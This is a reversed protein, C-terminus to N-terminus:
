LQTVTIHIYVEPYILGPLLDLLTFDSTNYAHGQLNQLVDGPTTIEYFTQESEDYGNGSSPDAINRYPLFTAANEFCLDLTIELDAHALEENLELYNALRESDAYDSGGPWPPPNNMYDPNGFNDIVFFELENDAAVNFNNMKVVNAEDAPRDTQM